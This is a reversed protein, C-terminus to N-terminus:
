QIADYVVREVYDELATAETRRRRVHASHVGAERLGAGEIGRALLRTEAPCNYTRQTLIIRAYVFDTPASYSLVPAYYLSKFSNFCLMIPGNQLMIRWPRSRLGVRAM